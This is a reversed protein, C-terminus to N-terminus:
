DACHVDPKILMHAGIVLLDMDTRLFCDLAQAPSEVIPENENFSTNLLVPVGTIDAFARILLWYEPNTRRSVAQLRGSGDVHTVAPIVDRKDPRVRFVQIMFPDPVADVFYDNVAEALVSPAFPRFRERLKIKVNLVDRMDPRRPDALISRNGLARAGWEMRGQFWGAVRGAALYRATALARQEHSRPVELRCRHTTVAGADEIARIVADDGHATGWYGHEMRFGRPRGLRAHWVQLAAGLATGNDAAAPQVYLEQFPTHERIKGNAVSNMACGGALCLRPSPARAHAGRLVHFVAEEFVAQASAALDHHREEIPADALRPPGLLQDLEKTYVDAIRPEGTDWTMPVEGRWHRFYRLNLAFDGDRTLRLLSRMRTTERPQGYAALGMVKYEDGWKKFGLYQTLALYFIGISHPFFVRHVVDLRPGMGRAISTSVFDGFGDIACCTAEDFGSCYFASALHAPHHEVFALRASVHPEALHLADAITAALRAHRHTAARYQSFLRRPRHTLAFRARAALNARKAGAAAFIDVDCAEAGAATLCAQIARAPFGAVHKIRAFREEEVAAMLVGDRLLAAAVDGHYANFGLILM